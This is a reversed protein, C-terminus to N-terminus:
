LCIRHSLGFTDLYAYLEESSAGVTEFYLGWISPTILKGHLWLLLTKRELLAAFCQKAMDSTEGAFVEQHPLHHIPWYKKSFNVLM